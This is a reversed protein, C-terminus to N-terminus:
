DEELVAIAVQPIIITKRKLTKRCIFDETTEFRISIGGSRKIEEINDIYKLLEDNLGILRSISNEQAKITNEYQVVQDQLLSFEEQFASKRPMKDKIQVVEAKLQKLEESYNQRPVFGNAFIM